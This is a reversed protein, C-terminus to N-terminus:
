VRKPGPKSTEDIMRVHDMFQAFSAQKHFELLRHRHYPVLNLQFDSEPRIQDHFMFKDHFQLRNLVNGPHM